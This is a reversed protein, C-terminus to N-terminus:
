YNSIKYGAWIGFLGGIATTFVSTMPLESLGFLVPLFGGLASGVAMGLWIFNKTSM